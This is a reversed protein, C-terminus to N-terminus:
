RADEAECEVLAAVMLQHPLEDLPKLVESVHQHLQERSYLSLLRPEARVVLDLAKRIFHSKM